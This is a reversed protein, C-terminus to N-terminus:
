PMTLLETFRKVIAVMRDYPERRKMLGPDYHWRIFPKNFLTQSINKVSARSYPANVKRPMVRKMLQDFFDFDDSGYMGADSLLRFVGQWHSKKNFLLEDKKGNVYVFTGSFVEETLHQRGCENDNVWGENCIYVPMKVMLCGSIADCNDAVTAIVPRNHINDSVVIVMGPKIGEYTMGCPVTASLSDWIDAPGGEFPHPGLIVPEIPDPNYGPGLKPSPAPTPILGGRPYEPTIITDIINGDAKRSVLAAKAMMRDAARVMEVLKMIKPFDVAKVDESYGDLNSRWHDAYAKEVGKTIM